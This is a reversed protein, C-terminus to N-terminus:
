EQSSKTKSLPPEIKDDVLVRRTTWTRGATQPGKFPHELNRARHWSEQPTLYIKPLHYWSDFDPSDQRHIPVQPINNDFYHPHLPLPQEFFHFAPVQEYNGPNRIGDIVPVDDIKTNKKIKTVVSLHVDTVLNGDADPNTTVRVNCVGNKCANEGSGTENGNVIIHINNVVTPKGMSPIDYGLDFPREQRKKNQFLQEISIFDDKPKGIQAGFEGLRENLTFGPSKPGAGAGQNLDVFAKLVSTSLTSPLSPKEESDLDIKSSIDSALSVVATAFLIISVSLPVMARTLYM